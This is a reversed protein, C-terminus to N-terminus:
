LNSWLVVMPNPDNPLRAPCRGGAAGLQGVNRRHRGRRPLTAVPGSARELDLVQRLPPEGDSVGLM